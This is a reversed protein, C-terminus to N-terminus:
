RSHDVYGGGERLVRVAPFILEKLAENNSQNLSGTILVGAEVWLFSFANHIGTHGILTMGPGANAKYLGIGYVIEEGLDSEGWRQMEALSKQSILKSDFIGRLLKIQDELTSYIGGGSWDASQMRNDTVDLNDEYSHTPAACGQPLPEEFFMWSCRMKLPKFIETRLQEHLKRGTLRELALGVIVYNTDSYEFCSRPACVPAQQGAWDMLEAPNWKKDKAKRWTALFADGDWYDALGSRHALLDRLTLSELNRRFEPNNARNLLWGDDGVLGLVPADLDLLGRESYIFTLTAVMIKTISAIGFPTNRFVPAGDSRSHTGVVLATVLRDDEDKAKLTSVALLAAGPNPKSHSVAHKLVAQLQHQINPDAIEASPVGSRDQAFSATPLWVLGAVAIAISTRRFVKFGDRSLYNQRM